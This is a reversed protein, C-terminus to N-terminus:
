SPSLDIISLLYCPTADYWEAKSTIWKSSVKGSEFGEHRLSSREVQSSYNAAEQKASSHRKDVCAVGDRRQSLVQFIGDHAILKKRLTDLLM